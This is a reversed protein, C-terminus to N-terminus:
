YLCYLNRYDEWLGLDKIISFAEKIEFIIDKELQAIDNCHYFERHVEKIKPYEEWEAIIYEFDKINEVYCYLKHQFSKLYKGKKYEATTKIDKLM